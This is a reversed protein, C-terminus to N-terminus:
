RGTSLCIFCGPPYDKAHQTKEPWAARESFAVGRQCAEGVPCAARGIFPRCIPWDPGYCNRRSIMLGQGLRPLIPLFSRRRRTAARRRRRRRMSAPTVTTRALIRPPSSLHHTRTQPTRDVAV